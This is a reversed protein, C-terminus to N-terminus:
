QRNGLADRALRASRADRPWGLSRILTGASDCVVFEDRRDFHSLARATALSTHTLLNQGPPAALVREVCAQDGCVGVLRTRSLGRGFQRWLELDDDFSSGHLVFVTLTDDPEATAAFSRHRSGVLGTLRGIGAPDEDALRAHHELRRVQRAEVIVRKALLVDIVVLTATLAVIVMTCRKM